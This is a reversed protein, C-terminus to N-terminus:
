TTASSGRSSSSYDEPRASAHRRCSRRSTTAPAWCRGRWWRPRGRSSARSVTPISPAVTPWSSDATPYAPWRGHGLTVGWAGHGSVVHLGDIGPVAGLLPRGDAALPRACARVQEIAAGALEPVYRAGRELLRPAVAAADPEASTFTSGEVLACIM